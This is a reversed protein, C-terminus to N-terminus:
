AYPTNLRGNSAPVSTGVGSTKIIPSLPLITLFSRRHRSPDRRVREGKENEELRLRTQANGDQVRTGHDPRNQWALPIGIPM